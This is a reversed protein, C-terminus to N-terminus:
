YFLAVISTATTNTARVRSASVKYVNGALVGTFTVNTGNVTLAVNGAGGIYIADSNRTALSGQANSDHPTVAEAITYALDKVQPYLM